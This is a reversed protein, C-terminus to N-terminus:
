QKEFKGTVVDIYYWQIVETTSSVNVTVIYRGQADIGMNSYYVGSETGFDKKAINIAKEEQKEVPETIVESSTKEQNNENEVNDKKESEEKEDDKEQVNNVSSNTLNSIVQNRDIENKNDNSVNVGKKELNYIGALICIIVVFIVIFLIMKKNDAEKARKGRM